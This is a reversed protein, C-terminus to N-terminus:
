TGQVEMKMSAIRVTELYTASIYMDHPYAQRKICYEMVKLQKSDEWTQNLM